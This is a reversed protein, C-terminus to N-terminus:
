ETGKGAILRSVLDEVLAYPSAQGNRVMRESAALWRDLTGSAWLSHLLRDRMLSRLRQTVRRELQAGWATPDRRQVSRHEEIGRLLEEIGEGRTAVTRSIRPEWAEGGTGGARRERGLDLM